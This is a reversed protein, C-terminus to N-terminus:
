KLGIKGETVLADPLSVSSVVVVTRASSIQFNQDPRGRGTPNSQWQAVAGLNGDGANWWEM